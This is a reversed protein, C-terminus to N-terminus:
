ASPRRWPPFKIQETGELAARVRDKGGEAHRHVNELVMIADDVVLGVALALGLLTFTNFTYGLAYIVFVTGLLSM